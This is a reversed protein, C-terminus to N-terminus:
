QSFNFILRTSIIETDTAHFSNIELQQKFFYFTSIQRFHTGTEFFLGFKGYKVLFIYNESKRLNVIMKCPNINAISIVRELNSLPFTNSTSFTCVAPMTKIYVYWFFYGSLQVIIRKKSHNLQYQSRHNDLVSKQHIICM